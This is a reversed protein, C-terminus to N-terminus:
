DIAKLSNFAAETSQNATKALTAINGEGCYGQVHAFIYYYDGVKKAGEVQEIPKEDAGAGPSYAEGAKIRIIRGGAGSESSCQNSGPNEKDEGATKILNVTSFSIFDNVPDYTYTLDKTADSVKFQVGIEPIERYDSSEESDASSKADALEKNLRTKETELKTIEAQLKTQQQYYFLGWATNSTILLLVLVVLWITKKRSPKQEVPSFTTPTDDM